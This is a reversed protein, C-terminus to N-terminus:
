NGEELLPISNDVCMNELKEIDTESTSYINQFVVTEVIYAVKRGPKAMFTMPAVLEKKSGDEQLIFMRGSVMNCLHEMRHHKGIILAGAPMTVEKIYINPGFHHKEECQIQPQAVATDYLTGIKKELLSATKPKTAVLTM